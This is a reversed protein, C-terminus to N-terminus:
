ELVHQTRISSAIAIFCVATEAISVLLAVLNIQHIFNLAKEGQRGQGEKGM